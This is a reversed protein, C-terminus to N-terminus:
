SWGQQQPCQRTPSASTWTASSSYPRRFLQSWVPPTQSAEKLSNMLHTKTVECFERSIVANLRWQLPFVKELNYQFERLCRRLWTYRRDISELDSSERGPEFQQRYPDVFHSVLLQTVEDKVESGLVEVVRCASALVEPATNNLDRFDELLQLRLEKIIQSRQHTVESVLPVGKFANFSTLLSGTAELLGQAQEYQKHECAEALREVGQTLMGLRKLGSISVTLNKKAFDLQRLDKCINDVMTESDLAKRRMLLIREKLDEVAAKSAQLEPTAQV